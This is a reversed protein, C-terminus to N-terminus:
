VGIIMFSFKGNSRGNNDGRYTRVTFSNADRRVVMISLPMYATDTTNREDYLSVLVINARNANHTIKVYGERATSGDLVASITQNTFNKLVGARNWFASGSGAMYVTGSFLVNPIASDASVDGRFDLQMRKGETLSTNIGVRFYDNTGASLCYGNIGLESGRFVANKLLQRELKPVTIKFSDALMSYFAYHDRGEYYARYTQRM